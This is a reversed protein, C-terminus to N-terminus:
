IYKDNTKSESKSKAKEKRLKQCIVKQRLSKGSTVKEVSLNILLM